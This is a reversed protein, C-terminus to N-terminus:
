KEANKPNQGFAEMKAVVDKGLFCIPEFIKADL